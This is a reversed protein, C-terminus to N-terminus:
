RATILVLTLSLVITVPSKWIEIMMIALLMVEDPRGNVKDRPRRDM